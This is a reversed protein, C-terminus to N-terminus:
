YSLNKDHMHINQGNHEPVIVSFLKMVKNRRQSSDRLNIDSLTKAGLSPYLVFCGRVKKSLLQDSKLNPTFVPSM